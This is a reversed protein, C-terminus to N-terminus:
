ILCIADNPLVRASSHNYHHTVWCCVGRLILGAKETSCRVSECMALCWSSHMYQLTQLTCIQTQVAPRILRTEINLFLCTSATSMRVVSQVSAYSMKIWLNHSASLM